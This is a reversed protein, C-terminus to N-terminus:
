APNEYEPTCVYASIGNHEDLLDTDNHSYLSAPYSISFPQKGCIRAGQHRQLPSPASPNIPTPNPTAPPLTCPSYAGPISSPRVGTCRIRNAYALPGLDATEQTQLPTQLVVMVLAEQVGVKLAPGLCWYPLLGSRLM